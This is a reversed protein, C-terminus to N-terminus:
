LNFGSFCEIDAACVAASPFNINKKGFCLLVFAYENIKNFLGIDTNIIYIFNYHHRDM